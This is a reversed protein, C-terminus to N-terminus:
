RRVGGNQYKKERKRKKREKKREKEATFISEDNEVTVQTTCTFKPLHYHYSWRAFM